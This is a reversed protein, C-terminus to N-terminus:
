LGGKLSGIFRTWKEPNERIYKRIRNLGANSRIIHDHFRSQWQFDQKTKRAYTSVISKIGRIISAVNKSQPGFQNKYQNNQISKASDGHMTIRGNGMNHNTNYPNEGIIIIAHFHDPMVVFEDLTINMDPRIDPTKLWENQLYNGLESLIMKGNNIKGFYPIKNKTCITIFYGGPSSYDYGRYRISGIRYKNRFLACM